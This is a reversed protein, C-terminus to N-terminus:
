PATREAQLRDIIDHILEAHDLSLPIARMPLSGATFQYDGEDWRFMSIVIERVQQKVADYLQKPTLFGLEVLIAGFRKRSTKLVKTAAEHHTPSITGQRVLFMGLRDSDQNSSAFVINGDRLYVTKEEGKQRVALTGTLQQQELERLLDALSIDSLNGARPLSM